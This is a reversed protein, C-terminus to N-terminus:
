RAGAGSVEAEQLSGSSVPAKAEPAVQQEQPSLAAQSRGEGAVTLFGLVGAWFCIKPPCTALPRVPLCSFHLIQHGSCPEQLHSPSRLSGSSLQLCCGEMLWVEKESMFAQLLCRWAVLTGPDAETGVAGGSTPLAASVPALHPPRCGFSLFIWSPCAGRLPCITILHCNSFPSKTM